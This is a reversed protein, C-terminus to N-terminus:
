CGWIRSMIWSLAHQHKKYQINGTGYCENDHKKYLDLTEKTMISLMAAWIIVKSRMSAMGDFCKPKRGSIYQQFTWESNVTTLTHQLTCRAAAAPYSICLLFASAKNLLGLFSPFFSKLDFFNIKILTKFYKSTKKKEELLQLKYIHGSAPKLAM